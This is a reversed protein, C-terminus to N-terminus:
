FNHDAAGAENVTTVTTANGAADTTAASPTWVATASANLRVSTGAQTGLTIAISTGTRVMTSATGSAGFTNDNTVYEGGLAVSGLPLQANNAANWVTLTDNAGTNGIRVVVSTSAGTWGALVSEPDIAESWTYTIVDTALPRGNQGTSNTPQVDTGVPATHDITTSWGATRCRLAADAVSVSYAYPGEVMPSGSTLAASRWGYSVGGVTYTGAALPVLYQGGTLSRVDATVRTAAGTIAAYVYYTSAQRISGGLYPTTKSIVSATVTPAAADNVFCGASGSTAGITESDGFSAGSMRVGIGVALLGTALATTITLLGLRRM